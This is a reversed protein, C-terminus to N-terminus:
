FPPPVAGMGGVSDINLYLGGCRANRFYSMKLIKSETCKCIFNMEECASSPISGELELFETQM